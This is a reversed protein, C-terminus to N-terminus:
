KKFIKWALTRSTFKSGKYEYDPSALTIAPSAWIPIVSYDNLVEFHLKQIFELKDKNTKLHLYENLIQDATKNPIRFINNKLLYSIQSYSVDFSVDNGMVFFIPIDQRSFISVNSQNIEVGEIRSFAQKWRPMNVTYFNIKNQLKSVTNLKKSEILSLQDKTLYGQGFEQFFQKTSEAFLGKSNEFEKRVLSGLFARDEVTTAEVAKQNFRLFTVAINQTRFIDWRFQKVKEIQDQSLIVTTSIVDLRGEEMLKFVNDSNADVIQIKQVNSEDANLKKNNSYLTYIDGNKLHYFGSTKSYDIIKATKLDNTDFASKPVIKNNISALLPIVMAINLENSVDIFLKDDKAYVRNLCSEADESESCILRWLDGHDNKTNIFTRRLSFEADQANAISDKAFEMVLTNKQWYFKEALDPVYENYDNVRVLNSYMHNVYFANTITTNKIPDIPLILDALNMGIRLTDIKSDVFKEKFTLIVSFILALTILVLFYKRSNKLSKM